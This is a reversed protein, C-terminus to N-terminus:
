LLDQEKFQDLKVLLAFLKKHSGSSEKLVLKLIVKNKKLHLILNLIGSNYDVTLVKGLNSTVLNLLKNDQHYQM